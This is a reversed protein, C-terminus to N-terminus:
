FNCKNNSNAYYNRIINANKLVQKLFKRRGIEPLGSIIISSPKLRDYDYIREEFTRIQETRGIFIQDLEKNKPSINWQMERLAQMILDYSKNPKSIYRLSYNEKIWLPIRDDEYTIAKDIIIPMFRKLKGDKIYDEAKDIEKNVWESDLAEDSIFYVFIGSADIGDYIENITKNGAEFTYEDYVISNKGLKDAIIRIYGKQKSSHSLFIRSM